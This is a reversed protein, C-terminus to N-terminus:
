ASVTKRGGDGQRRTTCDQFGDWANLVAALSQPSLKARKGRCDRGMGNSIRRSEGSGVWRWRFISIHTYFYISKPLREQDTRKRVNHRQKPDPSSPNPSHNAS